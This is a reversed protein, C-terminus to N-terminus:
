ILAEFCTDNPIEFERVLAPILSTKNPHKEIRYDM